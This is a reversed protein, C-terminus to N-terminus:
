GKFDPNEHIYRVALDEGLNVELKKFSIRGENYKHLGELMKWLMTLDDGSLLKRYLGYYKTTFIPFKEEMYAEYELQSHTNKYDMAVDTNIFELVALIEDTLEHLEAPTPPQPKNNTDYVYSNNDM